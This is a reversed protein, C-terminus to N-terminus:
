NADPLINITMPCCGGKHEPSFPCDLEPKSGVAGAWCNGINTCVGIVEWRKGTTNVYRIYDPARREEIFVFPDETIELNTYKELEISQFRNVRVWDIIDADSYTLPFTSYDSLRTRVFQSGEYENMEVLVNQHTDDIKKNAIEIVRTRM